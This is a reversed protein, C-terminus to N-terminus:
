SAPSSTASTFPIPTSEEDTAFIGHSKEEPMKTPQTSQTTAIHGLLERRRDKHLKVFEAVKSYAIAEYELPLEFDKIPYKDTVSATVRVEIKWDTIKTLDSYKIGDAGNPPMIEAYDCNKIIQVSWDYLVSKMERLNSKGTAPASSPLFCSRIKKRLEGEGLYFALSVKKRQVFESNTAALEFLFRNFEKISGRFYVRTEPNHIDKVYSTAVVNYRKMLDMYADYCKDMAEESSAPAYNYNAGQAIYMMSAVSFLIIVKRLKVLTM